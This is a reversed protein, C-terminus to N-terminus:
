KSIKWDMFRPQGGQDHWRMQLALGDKAAKVIQGFDITKRGKEVLAKAADNIPYYMLRGGNTMQFFQIPEKNM